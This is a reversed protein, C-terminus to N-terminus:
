NVISSPRAENISPLQVPLFLCLERNRGAPDQKLQRRFQPLQPCVRTTVRARSRLIFCRDPRCMIVKLKVGLPSTVDIVEDAIALMTPLIDLGLAKATARPPLSTANLCCSWYIHGMGLRTRRRAQPMGTFFM